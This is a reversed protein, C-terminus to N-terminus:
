WFRETIGGDGRMIKGHLWIMSAVMTRVEVGRAGTDPKELINAPKAPKYQSPAGM